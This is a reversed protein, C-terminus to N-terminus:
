VAKTVEGDANVLYVVIGLVSLSKRTKEILGLYTPMEPFGLAVEAEPTEGMRLLISLLAGAYYHSAQLRPDTPKPQGRKPGHQYVKLPYGKVEVVLQRGNREAVIDPGHEGAATDVAMCAWGQDRLYRVMTAQIKDECYWMDCHAYENDASSDAVVFGTPLNHIRDDIMRREVM